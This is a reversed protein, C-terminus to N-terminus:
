GFGVSALSARLEHEWAGPDAVPRISENERDALFVDVAAVLSAPDSTSVAAGGLELEHMLNERGHGPV